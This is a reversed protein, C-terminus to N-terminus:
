LGRKETMQLEHPSSSYEKILTIRFVQFRMAFRISHSKHLIFSRKIRRCVGTFRRAKKTRPIATFANNVTALSVHSCIFIAKPCWMSSM